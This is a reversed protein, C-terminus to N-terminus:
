HIEEKTFNYSPQLNLFLSQTMQLRRATKQARIVQLLIIDKSAKHRTYELKFTQNMMFSISIASIYNADNIIKHLMLYVCSNWLMGNCLIKQEIHISNQISISYSDNNRIFANQHDHDIDSNEVHNKQIPLDILKAWNGEPTTIKAHCRRATNVENMCQKQFYCTLFQLM